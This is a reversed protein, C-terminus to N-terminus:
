QSNGQYPDIIMINDSPRYLHIISHGRPFLRCSNSHICLLLSNLLPVIVYICVQSKIVIFGDDIDGVVVQVKGFLDRKLLAPLRLIDGITIIRQPILYLFINLFRILFFEGTCLIVTGIFFEASM